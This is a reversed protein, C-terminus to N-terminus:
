VELQMKYWFTRDYKERGEDFHVLHGLKGRILEIRVASLNFKANVRSGAGTQSLQLWRQCNRVQDAPSPAPQRPSPGDAKRLRTEADRLCTSATASTQIRGREMSRAM